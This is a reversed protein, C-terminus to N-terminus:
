VMLLDTYRRRFLVSGTNLTIIERMCYAFNNFRLPNGKDSLNNLSALFLDKEFGTNLHELIKVSDSNCILHKYLQEIFNQDDFVKTCNKSYFRPWKRRNGVPFREEYSLSM